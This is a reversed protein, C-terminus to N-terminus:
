TKDLDIKFVKMLRQLELHKYLADKCLFMEEGWCVDNSKKDITVKSFLSIENLRAFEEKELLYTCSYEGELGDDYKLQLKYDEKPLVSILTPLYDGTNLLM